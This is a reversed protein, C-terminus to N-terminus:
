YPFVANRVMSYCEKNRDEFDQNKAEVCQGYTGLYFARMTLELAESTCSTTAINRVLTYQAENYTTRVLVKNLRPLFKM